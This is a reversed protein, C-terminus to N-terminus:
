GGGEGEVAGELGDAEFLIEMDGADSEGGLAAEFRGVPGV